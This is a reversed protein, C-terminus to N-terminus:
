PPKKFIGRVLDPTSIAHCPAYACTVQPVGLIPTADFAAAPDDAQTIPGVVIHSRRMLPPAAHCRPEPRGACCRCVCASLSSADPGLLERLRAGGPRLSSARFARRKLAPAFAKVQEGDAVGTQALTEENMSTIGYHRPYRCRASEDVAAQAAQMMPIGGVAHMTITDAGAEVASAAARM